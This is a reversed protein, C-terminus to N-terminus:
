KEYPDLDEESEDKRTLNKLFQDPKGLLEELYAHKYRLIDVEAESITKGNEDIKKVIQMALHNINEQFLQTLFVWGASVKLSELAVLIKTNETPKTFSLDFKVPTTVKAIHVKPETTKPKKM